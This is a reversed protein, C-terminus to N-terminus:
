LLLGCVTATVIRLLSLPSACLSSECHRTHTASPPARGHVSRFRACSRWPTTVCNLCARAAQDADVHGGEENRGIGHPAASDCAKEHRDCQENPKRRM